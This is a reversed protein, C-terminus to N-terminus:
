GGGCKGAACKMIRAKKLKKKVAIQLEQTTSNSLSFKILANDGGRIAQKPKILMLHYSGPRLALTSNAVIKLSKQPLMKAIGNVEKSLHMEVSDFNPSSVATIEIAQNSPNHIYMFGALVQAGPPAEPIYAASFKLSDTAHSATASLCFLVTSLLLSKIKLSMNM